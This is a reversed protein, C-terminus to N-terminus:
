LLLYGPCFRSGKTKVFRCSKRNGVKGHKSGSPDRSECDTYNSCTTGSRLLRQKLAVSSASKHREATSTTDSAPGSWLCTEPWSALQRRQWTPSRVFTTAIALSAPLGSKAEESRRLNETLGAAIKSTGSRVRVGRAGGEKSRESYNKSRSCRWM